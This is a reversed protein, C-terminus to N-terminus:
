LEVAEVEIFNAMSKTKADELALAFTATNFGQQMSDTFVFEQTGIVGNGMGFDEKCNRVKVVMNFTKSKVEVTEQKKAKLKAM